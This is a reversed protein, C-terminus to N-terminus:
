PEHTLAAFATDLRARADALGKRRDDRWARDAELRERARALM